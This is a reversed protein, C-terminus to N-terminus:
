PSRCPSRLASAALPQQRVSTASIGGLVPNLIGLNAQNNISNGAAWTTQNTNGNGHVGGQSQNNGNYNGNGNGNGNGTLIDNGSGNGVLPGNLM